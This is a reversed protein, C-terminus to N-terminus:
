KKGFGTIQRKKNELEPMLNRIAQFIDRIETDHKEVKKELKELAYKLEKHTSLIYRLKVFARMIAINMLIARKSRLVSSLMAIGQETFAYPLSSSYKLLVFRDCITVLEEVEHKTLRFMFDAPFREINRKVAQNLVKTAIGYLKGLDQDLMVKQGRILFIKQEVVENLALTKM